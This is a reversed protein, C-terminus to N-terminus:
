RTRARGAVQALLQQVQRRDVPKTLLCDIGSREADGSEPSSGYGTVAILVADRVWPEAELRRALEYGDMGPMGLALLVADPPAAKACALAEPGDYATCVTHGDMRLLMTLSEAADRNDDVVLLRLTSPLDQPRQRPAQTEPAAALPLRVEFVSGRVGDSEVRVQGGDKEVLRKVVHLGVGLGGEARTHRWDGQMFLDFVHPLLEARIGSGTDSVRIVVNDAERRVSLEV